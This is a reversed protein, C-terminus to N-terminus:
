LVTDGVPEPEGVELVVEIGLVGPELLPGPEVEADVEVATGVM